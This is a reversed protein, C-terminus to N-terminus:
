RQSAIPIATEGVTNSRWTRARSMASIKLAKASAVCVIGPPTLRHRASSDPHMPKTPERARAVLPSAFSAGGLAYIFQRRHIGSAM